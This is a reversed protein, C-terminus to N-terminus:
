CFFYILMYESYLKSYRVDNNNHLYRACMFLIGEKSSDAWKNNNQIMSMLKRKYTDIFNDKDAETIQTKIYNYLMSYLKQHQATWPKMKLNNNKTM